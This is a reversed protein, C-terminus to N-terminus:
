VLFAAALPLRVHAVAYPPLNLMLVGAKLSLEETSKNFSADPALAEAALVEAQAPPGTVGAVSLAVTRGQAADFNAITLLVNGADLSAITDIDSDSSTVPLRLRGQHQSYRAFLEGIPDLEASFPKVSIGGENIIEFYNSFEVGFEAANRVVSGV